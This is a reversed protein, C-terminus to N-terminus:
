KTFNGIFFIITSNTTGEKKQLDDASSLEVVSIDTVRLLYIRHFTIIIFIFSWHLSYPMGFNEQNRKLEGAAKKKAM